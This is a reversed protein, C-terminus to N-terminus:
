RAGGSQPYPMLRPPNDDADVLWARRQNFYKILEENEAAGMDHAWVVKASDIDARNYIWMPSSNSQIANHRVFVLQRGTFQRLKDLVAAREADSPTSACWTLMGKKPWRPIPPWQIMSAGVVLGFLLVCIAPVARTFFEGVPKGRWQWPRVYRMAILVLAFISCTIPASYHPSYATPLAEGALTVACVLLLFRTGPSIKKWSFGYPLILLAFALSLTFLPGLYFTWFLVFNTLEMAALGRATRAQEYQPLAFFKLYNDRISEHRYVPVPELPQWPFPPVPNYAHEYALYPTNLPSGTTRWNYYGMAVVTLALVLLLPAMSRKLAIGLAPRQMKWLWALLAVAVPIGFFLGEYPRSNAIIAFGLGMLLAHRVRREQKLRPLAGLVLAGGIAAVAGGWYSNAWYSFTGLRIAALFGGLLAWGPELWGQLMWTITACMLGVSLWVGWFPHGTIVQGLAMILGQAPYYKATYTPHWIVQFTEFHVWMPNTPNTLRGHAFTDSLLLNGYEDSVGPHPIPLIPLLAARLALATLGVVLVSLARREALKGFRREWAAFWCSGLNPVLFALALALVVLGAELALFM